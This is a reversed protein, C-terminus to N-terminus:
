LLKPLNALSSPGMYSSNMGRIGRHVLIKATKSVLHPIPPLLYDHWHERKGLFSLTLSSSTTVHPESCSSPIVAWIEWMLEEAMLTIVRMIMLRNETRCLSKLISSSLLVIRNSLILVVKDWFIRWFRFGGQLVYNLCIYGFIVSQIGHVQSLLSSLSSSCSYDMPPLHCHSGLSGYSPTTQAPHEALDWSSRAADAETRSDGAVVSVIRSTCYSM